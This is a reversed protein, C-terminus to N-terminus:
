PILPRYSIRPLKHVNWASSFYTLWNAPTQWEPWGSDTASLGIRVVFDPVAAAGRFTKEAVVTTSMKIQKIYAIVYTSRTFTLVAEETKL